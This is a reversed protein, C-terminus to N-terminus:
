TEQEMSDLTKQLHEWWGSLQREALFWTGVYEIFINTYGIYLRCLHVMPYTLQKAVPIPGSYIIGEM